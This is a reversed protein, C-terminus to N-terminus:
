GASTLTARASKSSGSRWSRALLLFASFVQAVLDNVIADGLAPPIGETDLAKQEMYELCKEVFVPVQTTSRKDRLLMEKLSLGFVQSSFYAANVVPLSVRVWLVAVCPLHLFMILLRARVASAPKLSEATKGNM